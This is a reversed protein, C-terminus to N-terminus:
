KKGKKSMARGIQARRALSPQPKPPTAKPKAQKTSKPAEGPTQFKYGKAGMEIKTGPAAMAAMQTASAAHHSLIQKHQKAQAALLDKQAQTKMASGAAMLYLKENFAKDGAAEKAKRKFPAAAKQGLWSIGEQIKQTGSFSYPQNAPREPTSM